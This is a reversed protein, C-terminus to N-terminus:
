INKYFDLSNAGTFNATIIKTKINPNIKRCEAAVKENKSLTRSILVINWGKKAFRKCMEEGIGDSSGTVVAWTGKGSYREM